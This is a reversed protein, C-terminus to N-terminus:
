EAAAKARATGAREFISAWQAFRAAIQAAAKARPTRGAEYGEIANWFTTRGVAFGSFGDVSAAVELWNVVKREDAGRGLVICAVDNRGDRRATAVIAACDGRKDLGEVKWVDPEIGAQQLERMAKLMLAPRVERDYRDADNGVAALQAPLAPVLLEFMFRTSGERCYDSLQKLRSAQRANMAADDDPNYRVLVKAFTPRFAE